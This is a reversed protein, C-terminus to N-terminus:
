YTPSIYCGIKRCFSAMVIMIEVAGSAIYVMGSMMMGGVHMVYMMRSIHVIQSRHVIESRSSM